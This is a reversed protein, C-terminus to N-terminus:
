ADPGLITVRVQNPGVIPHDPLAALAEALRPAAHNRVALAALDAPRAPYVAGALAVDLDAVSVAESGPPAFGAIPDAPSAPSPTM